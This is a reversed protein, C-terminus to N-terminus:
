GRAAGTVRHSPLLSYKDLIFLPGILLFVVDDLFAPKAGEVHHGYFQGLWAAIWLGGCFWTLPVGVDQLGVVGATCFLLIVAMLVAARASLTAYFVLVLPGAINAANLWTGWLGTFGLWVGVPVSWLLGFSAFLIVPVCITHVLANTANGHTRRYEELFQRQTRMDSNQAIM